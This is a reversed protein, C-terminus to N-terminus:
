PDLGKQYEGMFHSAPKDPPQHLVAQTALDGITKPRSYCIKPPLLNLAKEFSSCHKEHLQQVVRGPIDHKDYVFHLYSPRPENRPLNNPNLRLLPDDQQREPPSELQTQLKQYAERFYPWIAEPLHGRALHRRYLLMTYKVYDKFKTNQLRYRKM